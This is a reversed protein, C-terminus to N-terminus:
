GSIPNTDWPNKPKEPTETQEHYASIWDVMTKRERDNEAKRKKQLLAEQFDSIDQHVQNPNYVGRFVFETEGVFVTVTGFNLLIGSLNERHHEISLINSINATKKQESGLPKREIGIIFEPTLQYIDNIWDVYSYTLWGLLVLFGLLGILVLTTPSLLTGSGPPVGRVSIYLFLFFFLLLLLPIWVKRLLLWWHKRYTIVGDKEYRVKLFNELAERFSKGQGSKDAAEPASKVVLGSLDPEARVSEGAIAKQIDERIQEQEAEKSFEIARRKNGEIFGQIEKPNPVRLMSIKGTYTRASVDGYNLIRGIQSSLVDVALITHLPAENRGSFLAVIKEMWIVRQTTIIVFDNGWDIWRWIFWGISGFFGAMSLFRLIQLGTTPNLSEGSFFLGLLSFLFLISPLILTLFLFFVHKRRFLQVSESESFWPLYRSRALRRSKAITRLRQELWPYDALMEYFFRREMRLLISKQTTKIIEPERRKFLLAEEGFHTGQSYTYLDIIENHANYPQKLNKYLWRQFRHLLNKDPASVKVQGKYIVYFHRGETQTDFITQNPEKRVPRFNAAIRTIDAVDMGQFLYDKLLLRSIDLTLNEM